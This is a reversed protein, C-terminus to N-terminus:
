LERHGLALLILEISAGLAMIIALVRVVRIGTAMWSQDRRKMGMLRFFRIPALSIFIAIFDAFSYFLFDRTLFQSM